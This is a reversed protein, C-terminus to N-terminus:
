HVFVCCYYSLFYLLFRFWLIEFCLVSVFILFSVLHDNKEGYLTMYSFIDKTEDNVSTLMVDLVSPTFMIPSDDFYISSGEPIDVTTFLGLGAKDVTSKKVELDRWTFDYKIETPIGLTLCSEPTPVKRCYITEYIKHPVQYSAM